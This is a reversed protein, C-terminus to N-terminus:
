GSADGVILEGRYMQMQCTFAYEGAPMAPLVVTKVTNLPLEESINCAPFVVTAACPSPDKRLFLLTATRGEPLLIHSPSYVGNEVTITLPAGIAEAATPKCLWFWWIILAIVVLGWVNVLMM